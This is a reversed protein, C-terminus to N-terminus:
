SAVELRARRRDAARRRRDKGEKALADFVDARLVKIRGNGFTALGNRKIWKWANIQPYKTDSVCILDAVEAVLMYPSREM